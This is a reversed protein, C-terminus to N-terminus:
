AIGAVNLAYSFAEEKFRSSSGDLMNGIFRSENQTYNGARVISEHDCWETVANLATWLTGSTSLGASTPSTWIRALDDRRNEAITRAKGKETPVKGFVADAMHSVTEWDAGIGALAEFTAVTETHATAVDRLVSQVQSLRDQIGATHKLDWGKALGTKGKRGRMAMSLTNQCVVRVTTPSVTLRRNGAHGNTLLLFSDVKDNGLEMGMTPVKALAWVTEGRGLAGATEVQIDLDFESLDALFRFLETNQVTEYDKGVVGLATSNDSRVVARLNELGKTEAMIGFGIEMKEVTWDLGAVKQFEMASVPTDLVTGLGHWAPQRLSAFTDINAAM